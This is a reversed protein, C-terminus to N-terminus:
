KRFLDMLLLSHDVALGLQKRAFFLCLEIETSDGIDIASVKIVKWFEYEVHYLKSINSLWSEVYVKQLSFRSM